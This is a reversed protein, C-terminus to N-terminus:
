DREEPNGVLMKEDEGQRSCAGEIEIGKIKDGYFYEISICVVVNGVILYEGTEDSKGKPGFKGVLVRNRLAKLVYEERSHCVVNGTFGVCNRQIDYGTAHYISAEGFWDGL